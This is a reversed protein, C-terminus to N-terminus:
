AFGLFVVAARALRTLDDNNLRGIRRGLNARPVTTIKDVMLQCPARLGNGDDPALTLRFLAAETPDTTCPVLTTSSTEGFADAQLIVAPRPKGAYVGGSVTWVEGRRATV